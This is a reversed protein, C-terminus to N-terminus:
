GWWYFVAGRDRFTKFATSGEAATNDLGQLSKRESAERVELIRYLTMKRLSEYVISQRHQHYQMIMTSSNVTRVVNSMSITEGNDLKLSRIGYAVDQHFYPRNIFNVFHDVKAMDVVTSAIIYQRPSLPVQAVCVPM